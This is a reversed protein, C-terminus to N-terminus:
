LHLLFLTALVLGAMWILGSLLLFVRARKQDTSSLSQRSAHWISVMALPALLVAGLGAPLLGLAAWRLRRLAPQLPTPDPPPYPQPVSRRKAVVLPLDDATQTYYLHDTEGDYALFADVSLQRRLADVMARQAREDHPSLKLSRSLCLLREEQTEATIGRWLWGSTEEPHSETIARALQYAHKKHGQSAAQRVAALPKTIIESAAM